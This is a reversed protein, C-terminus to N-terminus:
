ARVESPTWAAFRITVAAGAYALGLASVGTSGTHHWALGGTYSGVAGGVFYCVMYITNARSTARPVLGLVTSQNGVMATQIGADLATIGLALGFLTNGGAAFILFAAATIIGGLGVTVAPGYWDTLRGALPASSAGVVGVLGFLGAVEPGYGFPPAALHFALTSWFVSFAAFLLAGILSSIRLQRHNQWLVKLSM